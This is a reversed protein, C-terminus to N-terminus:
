PTPAASEAAAKARRSTKPPTLLGASVAVHEPVIYGKRDGGRTEVRIAHPGGVELLRALTEGRLSGDLFEIRAAGDQVEIAIGENM